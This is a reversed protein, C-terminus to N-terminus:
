FITKIFLGIRESEIRCNQVRNNFLHVSAVRKGGQDPWQVHAERVFVVGCRQLYFDRRLRPKYLEHEVCHRTHLRPLVDMDVRLRQLNHFVHQDGPGLLGLAM